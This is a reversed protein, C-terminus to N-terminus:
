GEPKLHPLLVVSEEENPDTRAVIYVAPETDSLNFPQHPVGAAIYVFDGAVSETYHELNPGYRTGARGSVVYLATEHAEHLHPEAVGGPPVVGMHMCIGRAGVSEASIGRGYSLNRSSGELEGSRVVRVGDDGSM